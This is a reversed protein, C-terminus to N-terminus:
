PQCPLAMRNHLALKLRKLAYHPLFIFSFYLYAKPKSYGFVIEYVKTNYKVLSFKNHSISGRGKRYSALPQQLAYAVGCKQLIMLVYAWDQRKRILPMYLKGVVETDYVATLFGIKDDHKTDRLTVHKPAVVMGTRDGNKNMVFYSSFVFPYHNEAMFAVQLEIKSPEWVDDSDCFAIYRGGAEAICKNRAAGAGSNGQLSFVRVRSDRKQFSEVIEITNDSSGDDTILLEINRYTQNLVGEISAAIFDASNYSPMIVSM